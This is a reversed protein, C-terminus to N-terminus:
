SIRNAIREFADLTEARQRARSEPYFIDWGENDALMMARLLRILDKDVFHAIEDMSLPAAQPWDRVVNISVHFLVTKVILAAFSGPGFLTDIGALIEPLKRNDQVPESSGEPLVVASYTFESWSGVLDNYEPTTTFGLTPLRQAATVASRFGHKPDRKGQEVVKEVDHFLVAWNMLDQQHPTMGTYEPLMFLGLFVCMVHVLTIGNNYSSMKQWGPICSEMREMKEHTFFAHVRPELDDWSNIKGAIYEDVLTCIFQNL